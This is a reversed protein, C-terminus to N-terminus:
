KGGHLAAPRTMVQWEFEHDTFRDGVQIEMPLLSLTDGDKARQLEAQRQQPKAGKRKMRDGSGGASAAVAPHHPRPGERDQSQHGARVENTGRGAPGRSRSIESKSNM